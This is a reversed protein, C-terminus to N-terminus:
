EDDKMQTKKEGWVCLPQFSWGDTKMGWNKRGERQKSHDGIEGNTKILPGGVHWM